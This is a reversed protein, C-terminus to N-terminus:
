MAPISDQSRVASASQGPAAPPRAAAPRAAPSAQDGCSPPGPVRRDEAPWTGDACSRGAAPSSLPPTASCCSRRPARASSIPPQRIGRQVRRAPLWGPWATGSCQRAAGPLLGLLPEAIYLLALVAVIAGVQNRIVAGLGVGAAAFLATAVTGGAIIQALQIGTVGSAIHRGALVPMGIAAAAATALLGFVLGAVTLAVLKAMLVPTRGPTILVAATITKHRYETTVALAGCILALTQALGAIALVGRGPSATGNFKTWEAMAWTAGAILVFTAVALARFSRITALKRLEARILSTM